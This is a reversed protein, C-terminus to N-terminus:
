ARPGAARASSGPTRPAGGTVHWHVFRSVAVVGNLRGAVSAAENGGIAVTRWADWGDM